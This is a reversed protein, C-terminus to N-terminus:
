ATGSQRIRAQLEVVQSEAREKAARLELLAQQTERSQEAMAEALAISSKIEHINTNTGFWRVIRGTSDRSPTVQTLFWRAVGDAGRLTFEMQFPEGTRLSRRWREVVAPLIAPDHVKEWGWGQMQEFTTGTYEYWRRNYFDIHGDPRATWALGPLNDIFTKLEQESTEARRRAEEAELKAQVLGTVEFAVVLLSDARGDPGPIPQYVFDFYADQPASGAGRQLVVRQAQGVYPEGTRRVQDLLEFFGQGALEPLAERARKGLVSRGGILERYRPNAVEFVHEEGRLVAVGAPAYEFMLAIRAAERQQSARLAEEAEARRRAHQDREILLAATRGLLEVIERDRQSPVTPSRHYLAFTGLVAGSSSLIPTSWCARLGHQGALGKFEQWLPDTQLDRVVVTQATFAATGCSGVAPGIVIGHIAANYEAPLSPAAGHLLRRGDESLILISGLVESSSQTEVTRVLVELIQAMPAGRLALELAEKQGEIVKENGAARQAGSDPDEGRSLSVM